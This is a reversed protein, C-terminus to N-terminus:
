AGPSPKPGLRLSILISLSSVSVYEIIQGIRLAPGGEEFRPQCSQVAFTPTPYSVFITHPHTLILEHDSILPASVVMTRHYHHQGRRKRQILTNNLWHADFYSLTHSTTANPGSCRRPTQNQNVNHTSRCSSAESHSCSGFIVASTSFHTRLTHQAHQSRLNPNKRRGSHPPLSLARPNDPTFLSPIRLGM